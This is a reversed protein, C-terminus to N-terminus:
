MVEANDNGGGGFIYNEDVSERPVAVWPFNDFNTNLSLYAVTYYYTVPMEVMEGTEPDEKPETDERRTDYMVYGEAPTLRYGYHEGDEYQRYILLNPYVIDTALQETYESM